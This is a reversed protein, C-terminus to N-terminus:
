NIYNIFGKYKFCRTLSINKLLTYLGYDTHLYIRKVYYINIMLLLCRHQAFIIFLTILIADKVLNKNAKDLYARHNKTLSLSAFLNRTYKKVYARKTVFFFINNRFKTASILKVININQIAQYNNQISM